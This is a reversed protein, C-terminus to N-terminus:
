AWPKSISACGEYSAPIYQRPCCQVCVAFHTSSWGASGRPRCRRRPKCQQKLTAYKTNTTQRHPEQKSMAQKAGEGGAKSAAYSAVVGGLVRRPGQRAHVTMNGLHCHTFGADAHKCRCEYITSAHKRICMSFALVDSINDVRVAVRVRM